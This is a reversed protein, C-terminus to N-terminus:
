DTYHCHKQLCFSDREVTKNSFYRIHPNQKECIVPYKIQYLVKNNIIEEVLQFRETSTFLEMGFRESEKVTRRLLFPIM